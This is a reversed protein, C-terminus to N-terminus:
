KFREWFGSLDNSLGNGANELQGTTWEVYSTAGRLKFEPLGFNNLVEDLVRQGRAVVGLMPEKILRAAEGFINRSNLRFNELAAYARNHMDDYSERSPIAGAEIAAAAQEDGTQAASAIEDLKARLADRTWRNCIGILRAEETRYERLRGAVPKLATNMARDLEADINFGLAHPQPSATTEEQQKRSVFKM